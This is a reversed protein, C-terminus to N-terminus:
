RYMTFTTVSQSSFVTRFILPTLSLSAIAVAILSMFPPPSPSLPRNQLDNLTVSTSFHTTQLSTMEPTCKRLSKQALMRLKMPPRELEYSFSSILALSFASASIDCVEACTLCLFRCSGVLVSLFRCSAPLLLCHVSLRPIISHPYEDMPQNSPPKHSYLCPSNEFTQKSDLAIALNPLYSGGQFSSAGIGFTSRSLHQLLISQSM